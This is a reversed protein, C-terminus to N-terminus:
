RGRRVNRFIPKLAVRHMWRPSTSSKEKERQEELLLLLETLLDKTAEEDLTDVLSKRMARKREARQLAKEYLRSGTM